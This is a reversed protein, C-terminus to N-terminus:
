SVYEVFTMMGTAMHDPHHSHLPWRGPNGADFAITVAANPPVFVTDRLVSGTTKSGLGFVQFHHRHLHMPHAMMSVNIVTVEIRLLAVGTATSLPTPQQQAVAESPTIAQYAGLAASGAMLQGLFDPRNM